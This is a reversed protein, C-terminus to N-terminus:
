GHLGIGAVGYALGNKSKRWAGVPGKVQTMGIRGQEVVMHGLGLLRSKQQPDLIDIRRAARRLAFGADITVQGPEAKRPFLWHALLRLMEVIIARRQLAKDILTQDVRGEHAPALNLRMNGVRLRLSGYPRLVRLTHGDKRPHISAPGVAFPLPKDLVAQGVGPPEVHFSGALMDAFREVPSFTTFSRIPIGPSQNGIWQCPPV